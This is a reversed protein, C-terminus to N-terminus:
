EEAAVAEAFGLVSGCRRSFLEGAAIMRRATAIDRGSSDV